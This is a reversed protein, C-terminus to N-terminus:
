YKALDAAPFGLRQGLGIGIMAEFMRPITANGLQM